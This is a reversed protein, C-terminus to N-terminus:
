KFITRLLKVTRVGTLSALSTSARTAACLVTVAAVGAELGEKNAASVITMTTAAAAIGLSEEFLKQHPTEDWENDNTQEIKLCREYYERDLELKKKYYEEENM